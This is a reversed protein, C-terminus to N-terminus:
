RDTTADGTPKLSEDGWVRQNYAKTGGRKVTLVQWDAEGVLQRSVMVIQGVHYGIHTMSRLIAEIVDHPMGRILVTKALDEVQLANLTHFYASWGEDWIRWLNEPTEDVLIFESDRDRWPKEGDTTLFDTFRSKLNGGVHKMLVGISNLSCGTVAVYKDEPLQRIAREALDRDYRSREIAYRLFQEAFESNNESM